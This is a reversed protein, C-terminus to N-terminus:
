PLEVIVRGRDKGQPDTTLAIALGTGLAAAGVGVAAVAWTPIGARPPTIPRQTTPALLARALVTNAGVELPAAGTAVQSPLFTGDPRLRGFLEPIAEAADDPLRDSVREVPVCFTDSSPSYLQVLVTGDGAGALLLLDADLHAGLARYLSATQRSRGFASAASTGFSPEDLDLAVKAEGRAPVVASASAWGGDESRAVLLHLGPLLGDVRQPLAGRSQGDIWLEASAADASVELAGAEQVSRARAAQYRQVLAPPFAVPDPERRPQLAAAAAFARDAGTADDRQAATAGLLFWAEWLDRVADATSAGLALEEVAQLLVAEADAFQAQNYLTRGDALLRQGPGLFAERLVVDERGTLAAALWAGDLVEAGEKALAKALKDVAAQQEPLDLRDDHVGLIVVSVPEDARAFNLALALLLHPLNGGRGAYM